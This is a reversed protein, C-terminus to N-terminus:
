RLTKNFFSVSSFRQPYNNIFYTLNPLCPSNVFPAANRNNKLNKLAGVRTVKKVIRPELYKKLNIYM